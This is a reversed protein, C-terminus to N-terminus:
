KLGGRQLWAEYTDDPWFNQFYSILAFKEKDTFQGKFGPMKGGLPIGGDDISRILASMSHHWAHAKGNLPPPPYSGDPLKQKWQSTGEANIGHCTVCHKEYHKQGLNIQSQKYWRGTINPEVNDESCGLLLLTCITILFSRYNYRSQALKM